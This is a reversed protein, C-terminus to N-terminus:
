ARSDETNGGHNKGRDTIAAQLFYSAPYKIKKYSYPINTNTSVPFVLFFPTKRMVHRIVRQLEKYLLSNSV